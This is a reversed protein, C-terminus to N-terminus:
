AIFNPSPPSAKKTNSVVSSIGADRCVDGSTYGVPQRLLDQNIVGLVPTELGQCTGHPHQIPPRSFGAAYEQTAATGLSSPDPYSFLRLFLRNTNMFM